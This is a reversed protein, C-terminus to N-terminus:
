NFSQKRSITNRIRSDPRRMVNPGAKNSASAIAFYLFFSRLLTENSDDREDKATLDIRLKTSTYCAQTPHSPRNAVQCQCVQCTSGKFAQPASGVELPKQQNNKEMRGDGIGSLAKHTQEWLCVADKSMNCAMRAWRPMNPQDVLATLTYGFAENIYPRLRWLLL